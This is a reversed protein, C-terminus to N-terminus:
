TGFEGNPLRTLSLSDKITKEKKYDAGGWPPDYYVITDLPFVKTRQIFTVANVNVAKVRDMVEAKQLNILLSGFNVSNVEIAEVKHYFEAFVTTNGGVGATLELIRGPQSRDGTLDKCYKIWLATRVSRNYDTVSSGFGEPISPSKINMLSKMM